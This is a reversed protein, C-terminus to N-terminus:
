KKPLEETVGCEFCRAMRPVADCVPCPRLIHGKYTYGCRCRWIGVLSIASGCNRCLMEHQYSMAWFDFWRFTRLISLVLLLPSLLLWRILEFIAGKM